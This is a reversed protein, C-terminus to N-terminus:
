ATLGSASPAWNVGRSPSLGEPWEVRQRRRFHCYALSIEFRRRAMRHRPACRLEVLFRLEEAFHLPHEVDTMSAPAADVQARRKRREEIEHVCACRELDVADLLRLEPLDHVLAVEAIHAVHRFARVHRRM